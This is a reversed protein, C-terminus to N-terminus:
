STTVRQDDVSIVSCGPTDLLILDALTNQAFSISVVRLSTASNGAQIPIGWRCRADRWRWRFAPLGAAIDLLMRASEGGSM